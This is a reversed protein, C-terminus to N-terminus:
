HDDQLESAALRRDVYLVVSSTLLAFSSPWLGPLAVLMGVPLLWARGSLAALACVLIGAVVRVPLPAVFDVTRYSEIGAGLSRVWQAWLEPDAVVGVVVIGGTVGLAIVFQRWERRGAHWIVGVGPTVKTLLITSWLAATARHRVVLVVILAIFVNINGRVVDDVVGPFALMWPVRLYLLAVIHASFWVAVFAAWPLLRLPATVWLFAPSYRYEAVGPPRDTWDYPPENLFYYAAGDAMVIQGEPTDGYPVTGTIALVCYLLAAAFIAWRGVRWYAELRRRSLAPPAGSGVAAESAM